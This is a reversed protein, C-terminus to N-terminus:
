QMLKSAEKQAIGCRTLVIRMYYTMSNKDVMHTVHSVIWDSGIMDLTLKQEREKLDQIPHYFKVVSGLKIDENYKILVLLDILSGTSRTSLKFKDVNKTNVTTSKTYDTFDENLLAYETTNFNSVDDKLTKTEEDYKYDEHDFYKFIKGYSMNTLWLQARSVFRWSLVTELKHDEYYAPNNTFTLKVASGKNEKYLYEPSCFSFKGDRDVFYLFGRTGSEAEAHEALYRIFQANTWQAQIYHQKDKSPEIVGEELGMDSILEQVVESASKEGDFSKVYDQMMLKPGIKDWTVFSFVVSNTTMSTFLESPQQTFLYHTYENMNETGFEDPFGINYKLEGTYLRDYNDILLGTDDTFVIKATPVFLTTSEVLKFTSLIPAVLDVQLYDDIKLFFSLKPKVAIPM